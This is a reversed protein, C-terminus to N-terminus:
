NSGFRTEKKSGNIITVKNRSVLKQGCGECQAPDFDGDMEYTIYLNVEYSGDKLGSFYAKCNNNFKSKRGNVEPHTQSWLMAYHDVCKEEFKVLSVTISGDNRQAQLQQQKRKAAAAAQRQRELEAAAAAQRKQEAELAAQRRREASLAAERRQEAQARAERRRELERRADADFSSYPRLIAPTSDKYDKQWQLRYASWVLYHEGDFFRKRILKGEYTPHDIFNLRDAATNSSSFHVRRSTEIDTALYFNNDLSYLRNDDSITIRTPSQRTVSLTGSQDISFFRGGAQMYFIETDSQAIATFIFFVSLVAILTPKM